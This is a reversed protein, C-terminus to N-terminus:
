DPLLDAAFLLLTLIAGVILAVIEGWTYRGAMGTPAPGLEPHQTAQYANASRAVMALVGAFTLAIVVDIVAGTTGYVRYTVRSLIIAGIFGLNALPLSLSTKGLAAKQAEAIGKFARSIYVLDVVPFLLWWPSGSKPFRERRAFDLLQFAWWIVYANSALLAYLFTRVPSRYFGRDSASAAFPQAAAYV